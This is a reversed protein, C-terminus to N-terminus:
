GELNKGTKRHTAEVERHTEEIGDLEERLLGAQIKLRQSQDDELSRVFPM